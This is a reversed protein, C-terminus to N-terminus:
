LILPKIMSVLPLPLFMKLMLSQSVVLALLKPRILRLLKLLIQTMTRPQANTGPFPAILQETSQTRVSAVSCRLVEEPCNHAIHGTKDCNFCVENTCDRMLHDQEGCHRCTKTKEAHQFRLQFKGFQLNCPVSKLIRVHYTRIGNCVGPYSQVHNRHKSFVRCFPKLREEIVSDPLKHPADFITLFELYVDSNSSYIRRQSSFLSEELFLPCYRVSCFTVMGEGSARRQICKVEKMPIGKAIFSDIVARTSFDTSARFFASCPRDPTINLPHFHERKFASLVRHQIPSPPVPLNRNNIADLAAQEEPTVLGRANRQACTEATRDASHDNPNNVTGQVTINNGDM